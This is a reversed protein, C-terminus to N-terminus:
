WTRRRVATARTAGRGRAPCFERARYGPPTMSRRLRVRDHFLEFTQPFRDLEEEDFTPVLPEGVEHLVRVGSVERADDALERAVILNAEEAQEARLVGALNEGLEVIRGQALQDARKGSTSTERTRSRM